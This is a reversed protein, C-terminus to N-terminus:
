KRRGGRKGARIDVWEVKARDWEQVSQGIATFYSTVEKESFGVIDELIPILIALANDSIITRKAIHGVLPSPSVAIPYGNYARVHHMVYMDSAGDGVYVVQSRSVKERNKLFNLIDVKASGAGTREIETAIGQKNYVFTSGFICSEPLIGEMAKVILEKPAASAIYPHFVIGEIGKKLLKLLERVNRKLKVEAGAEILIKKTVKGKFDADRTILYALEAGLKVMNKKRLLEIKKNFEKVQVGLKRSVIYGSDEASLTKDFDTIFLYFETM